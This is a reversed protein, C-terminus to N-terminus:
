KKNSAPIKLKQGIQIKKPDTIGNAKMLEDPNVKFKKAIKYPSDGKVVTYEAMDSTPAPTNSGGQASATVAAAITGPLQQIGSAVQNAQTSADVAAQAVIKEPVKLTQGVRLVANGAMGNAKELDLITVGLASSIKTITDGAKVLYTKATTAIQPASASEAPQAVTSSQPNSDQAVATAATVAGAGVGSIRQLAAKTNALFGKHLQPSETKLPTVEKPSVTKDQIKAINGSTKPAPQTIKAPDQKLKSIEATKAFPPSKERVPPRNEPEKQPPEQNSSGNPEVAPQTTPATAKAVTLKPGKNAKMSNFAYLGGVAIVHLMLVVLFAHSLKMNPEPGYDDFEAEHPNMATARARLRRTSTTKMPKM